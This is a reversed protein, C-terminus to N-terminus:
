PPTREAGAGRGPVGAARGLGSAPASGAKWFPSVTIWLAKPLPITVLTCGIPSIGEDLIANSEAPVLLPKHRTPGAAHTLAYPSRRRVARLRDAPAFVAGMLAARHLQPYLTDSNKRMEERTPITFADYAGVVTMGGGAPRRCWAPPRTRQLATCDGSLGGPRETAIRYSRRTGGNRWGWSRLSYSRRLFLRHPGHRELATKRCLAPVCATVIAMREGGCACRSLYDRAGEKMPVHAYADRPWPSGSKWSKRRPSTWVATTRTFEAAVPFISHGM